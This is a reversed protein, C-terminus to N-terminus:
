SGHRILDGMRGAPDWVEEELKAQNIARDGFVKTLAWVARRASLVPRIDVDPEVLIPDDMLTKNHYPVEDHWAPGWPAAAEHLQAGLSDMAMYNGPSGGWGFTLVLYLVLVSGPM